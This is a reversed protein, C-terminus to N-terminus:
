VLSCFFFNLVSLVEMGRCSDRGITKGTRVIMFSRVDKNWLRSILNICCKGCIPCCGDGPQVLQRCNRSNHICRNRDRINQCHEERSVNGGGCEGRYDLRTNAQSRLVCINEYTVGDGGCVQTQAHTLLTHQDHSCHINTM